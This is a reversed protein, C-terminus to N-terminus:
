PKCLITSTRLFSTYYFVVCVYVSWLVYMCVGCCMCVYELMGQLHRVEEQLCHRADGDRARRRACAAEEVANYIDYIYIYIHFTYMYEVYVHIYIHNYMMYIYKYINFIHVLVDGPVLPKRWQMTYMTYVYILLTELGLVDGIVCATMVYLVYTYMLICMHTRTRERERARTHTHTHTHTHTINTQTDYRCYRSTTLVASSSTRDLSLLPPSCRWSGESSNVFIHTCITCM